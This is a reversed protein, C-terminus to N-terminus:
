DPAWGLSYMDMKERDVIIMDLLDGWVVANVDLKVGIYTLDFELRLGMNERKDNGTNWTYNYHAIPNTDAVAIWAADTSSATLSRDACIPGWTPDTLLKNRAETRDFVAYDLSYNASKIGM